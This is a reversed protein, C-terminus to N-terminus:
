REFDVARRAGISCRPHRQPATWIPIPYPHACDVRHPPPLRRCRSIQSPWVLRSVRLSALDIEDQGGKRCGRSLRQREGAIATPHRELQCIRRGSPARRHLLRPM